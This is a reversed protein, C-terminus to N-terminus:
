EEEIDSSFALVEDTNYAYENPAKEDLKVVYVVYGFNNVVKIIHGHSLFPHDIHKVRDGIKFKM